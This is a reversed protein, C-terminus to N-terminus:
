TNSRNGVWRSERILPPPPSSARWCVGTAIVPEAAYPGVVCNTSRSGREAPRLNVSCIIIWIRFFIPYIRNISTVVTLRKKSRLVDRKLWRTFFLTSFVNQSSQDSQYVRIPYRMVIPEDPAAERKYCPDAV